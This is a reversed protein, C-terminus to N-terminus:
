SGTPSHMPFIGPGVLPKIQGPCDPKSWHWPKCKLWGFLRSHGRHNFFFVCFIFYFLLPGQSSSIDQTGTQSSGADDWVSVQHSVSPASVDQLGSDALWVSRQIGLVCTFNNYSSQKIVGLVCTFNNYSSQKLIVGLVCTFNNYM